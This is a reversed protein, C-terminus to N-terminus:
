SSALCRCPWSMLVLAFGQASPQSSLETLLLVAEQSAFPGHWLICYADYPPEQRNRVAHNRMNRSNRQSFICFLTSRSRLLCTDCWVCSKAHEWWETPWGCADPWRCNEKVGSRTMACSPPPAIREALLCCERSTVARDVILSESVLLRSKQGGGQAIYTGHQEIRATDVAYAM